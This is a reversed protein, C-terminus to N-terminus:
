GIKELHVIESDPYVEKMNHVFPKMIDDLGFATLVYEGDVVAVIMSEPFGCMWQNNKVANYMAEAFADVDGTVHCVGGTFHNLNMGHFLSAVDDINAIQDAPILLQYTLAEADELGYVGPAGDVMNNADGGMAPFKESEGTVAWIAELIALASTKAPEQEPAETQEPIEEEAPTDETPVEAVPVTETPVIEEEETKGCAALMAMVMALCLLLAILKKM